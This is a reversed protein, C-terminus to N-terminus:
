AYLKPNILGQSFSFNLFLKPKIKILYKRWFDSRHYINKFIMLKKTFSLLIIGLWINLFMISLPNQLIIESIQLYAVCPAHSEMGMNGVFYLMSYFHAFSLAAVIIFAVLLISILTKKLSYTM